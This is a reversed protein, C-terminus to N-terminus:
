PLVEAVQPKPSAEPPWWCHEGLAEAVMRQADPKFDAASYTTETIKWGGPFVADDAAGAARHAANLGDVYGQCGLAATDAIDPAPTKRAVLYAVQKHLCVTMGDLAAKIPATPTPLAVAPAPRRCTADHCGGLAVSAGLVVGVWKVYNPRM